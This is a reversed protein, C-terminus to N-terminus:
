SAEPELKPFFSGLSQILTVADTQKFVVLFAPIIEDISARVTAIESSIISANMWSYTFIDLVLSHQTVIETLPSFDDVALFQVAGEASGVITLLTKLIM